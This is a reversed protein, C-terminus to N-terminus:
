ACPIWNLPTDSISAGRTLTTGGISEPFRGPDEIRVQIRDAKTETVTGRIWDHESIGISLQRCVKAGVKSVAVRAATESLVRAVAARELEGSPRADSAATGCGALGLTWTLTGIAIYRHM